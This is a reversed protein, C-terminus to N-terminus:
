LSTQSARNQDQGHLFATKSKEYCTLLANLNIDSHPDGAIAREATECLTAFDTFGLTLASGKIFHVDQELDTSTALRDLVHQTEDLFLTVIDDFTDEGVDNRLANARSWNIM